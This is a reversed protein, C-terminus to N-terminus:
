RGFDSMGSSHHRLLHLEGLPYSLHAHALITRPAVHHVEM